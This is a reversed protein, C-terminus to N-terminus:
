KSSFKDKGKNEELSLYSLLQYLFDKDAFKQRVIIESDTMTKSENISQSKDYVLVPKPFCYFGVHPKDVFNMSQFEAETDLKNSIDTQLWQNDEPFPKLEKKQHKRKQQKLIAGFSAISIKRIYLTDHNLNKTFLSVASTAVPIDHRILMSLMVNSLQYYRWHLDPVGNSGNMLSVLKEVLNNYLDVNTQNRKQAITLANQIEEDTPCKFAPKPLSTNVTWVQRAIATCSDPIDVRLALTDFFKRVYGTIDL